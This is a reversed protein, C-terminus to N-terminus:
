RERLSVSEVLKCDLVFEVLTKQIIRAAKYSDDINGSATFATNTSEDSINNARYWHHNYCISAISLWINTVILLGITIIVCIQCFSLLTLRLTASITMSKQCSKECM